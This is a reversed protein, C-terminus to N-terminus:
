KIGLYLDVQANQPDRSRQDYLEFDVKYTRQIKKEDELKFIEMWAQPVVKALPGNESTFLAYHGTPITRAVMGQPPVTGEKVKAGILFSYEGNHDSAYDSYVAYLNGGIKNPIKDAIGEQFFRQWQRPIVGEPTAEKANSTRTEIGIVSFGAVETRTMISDKSADNTIPREDNASVTEGCFVSLVVLLFFVLIRM